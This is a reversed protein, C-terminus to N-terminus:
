LNKLLLPTANISEEVLGFDRAYVALNSATIKSWDYNVEVHSRAKEAMVALDEPHLIAQELAKACALVSASNFLLGRDGDLLQRHPAIDSAVVPVGERMAELITLPLGELNSPSVFLGAGKVIEALRSGQLEGTFIIDPNGEALRYLKSIFASTDSNGGALVLKWDTNELIQFAQILFDPRKEPVLRGLYLLYKGPTLGLSKVSGLNPDSEAYTGPGNPIYIPRIHHTEAFYTKLAKSVVVIEHGYIAATKEGLRIIKSASKGWKLRQWDLGQCTVIIKASSLLRPIISFLAPGLAHFHIIDYDKRSALLAAFCSNTFADLGRMPLSPLCIVRVGKHQSVSFWPKDIYSSRAFLDVSHGQEVIRPYLAECYQEIGGQKAPLGKAGIVAIKM